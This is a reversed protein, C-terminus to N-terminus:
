KKDKMVPISMCGFTPKMNYTYAYTNSVGGKEVTTTTTPTPKTHPRIATVYVAWLALAPLGVIILIKFVLSLIKAITNFSFDFLKAWAFPEM